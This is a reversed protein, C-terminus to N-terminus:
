PFGELAAAVARFAGALTPSGVEILTRGAGEDRIRIRVWEVTGPGVPEHRSQPVYGPASYLEIVELAIPGRGHARTQKPEVFTEGSV